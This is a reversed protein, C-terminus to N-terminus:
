GGKFCSIKGLYQGIMTTKTNESECKPCYIKECEKVSLLIKEFIHGCAKCQFVKIPMFLAGKV